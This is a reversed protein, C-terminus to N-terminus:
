LHGEEIVEQYTSERERQRSFIVSYAGDWREVDAEDIKQVGLHVRTEGMSMVKQAAMHNRAVEERIAMARDQAMELGKERAEEPSRAKVVMSYSTMLALKGPRPRKKRRQKGGM